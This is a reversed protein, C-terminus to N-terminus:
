SFFQDGLRGVLSFTQSRWRKWKGVTIWRKSLIRVTGFITCLGIYLRYKYM